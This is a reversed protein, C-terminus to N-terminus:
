GKERKTIFLLYSVASIILFYGIAWLKLDITKDIPSQRAMANLLSYTYPVVYGHKWHVALISAVYLGIGIGLPVLFNKFQLGLLYQLALIPLCAIFFRLNMKLFFVFPIREEPYPVGRFLLSPLVGCLYIGLNFLVFFQLLMFVTYSLKSFFVVSISQPTTMWQKWTTNRFEIQAMLSTVLIVGLPLLMINNLDWCRFFLSEWIKKSQSHLYLDYAGDAIRGILFLLPLM